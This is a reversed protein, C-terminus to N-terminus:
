GVDVHVNGRKPARMFFVLPLAIFLVIMMVHFIDLYSLMLAQQQLQHYIRATAMPGAQAQPLGQAQLAQSISNV